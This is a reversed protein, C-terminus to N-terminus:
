RTPLRAGSLPRAPPTSLIDQRRGPANAHPHPIQDIHIGGSQNKLDAGEKLLLTPDPLTRKLSHRTVTDTPTRADRENVILLMQAMRPQDRHLDRVELLSSASRQDM